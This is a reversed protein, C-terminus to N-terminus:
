RSTTIPGRVQSWLGRYLVRRREMRQCLLHLHPICRELVSEQLARPYCTARYSRLVSYMCTLLNSLMMVQYHAGYQGFMFALTRYQQPVRSLSRGIVGRKDNLLFSLSTTRQGSEIKKRRDIFVFQPGAMLEKSRLCTM